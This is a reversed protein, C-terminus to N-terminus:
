KQSCGNNPAGFVEAGDIRLEGRLIIIEATHEEDRLDKVFFFHEFSHERGESDHVVTNEFTQRNLEEAESTLKMQALASESYDFTKNNELKKGDLIVAFLAYKNEGFFAFGTGKFTFKVGAGAKGSSVTRKYDSFGSMLNHEWSGYYVFESDTDDFRTVYPPTNEIPEGKFQKFINKNYSSYLAARGACPYFEDTTRSGMLKGDLFYEIKNYCASLKLCHPKSMDLREDAGCGHVFDNIRVILNGNQYLLLSYGSIGKCASNYRLGVGAFNEDPKESQELLVDVSVSYNFWRDDGFSTTPLPTAGWEEAKIDYTIKQMLAKEGNLEIVEFAGGQDTTYKPTGSTLSLRNQAYNFDDYYPLPLIESKVPKIEPREAKLTSLTVLSCPKVTVEFAYGNETKVPTIEGIERFYNEDFESKRGDTKKSFYMEDFESANKGRTEWFYLPQGAKELETVNIRFIKEKDESNCIVVSYDGTKTDYATLFSNQTNKIAHGDKEGDCVCASDAFAWGKKIFLSFHLAMYFGSEVGYCGSWPEKASILQKYGYTVGDYYAAVVPQFEYLTMCGCPYMAIIRDAIDFVGNLGSLGSKDFRSTGKSYSMPPCGESFLIEKGYKDSLLRTNETGHSIYHSGIIDVASLLKEDQLMLDVIRWSGEEDAAVIKIKSFDYLCDTETKLRESFYKIWEPEVARENRNPSVCDFTLGFERYAANLTDKYWKYRAAFVDGSDSVWKPESWYLLDLILNPNTKKADAALIFGASRRVDPIENEYRMTSPETGSSSNIDSGMELKLYCINLGKDGFILDLIEKYREPQELKYDILLRSSNNASVMGFGRYLKNPLEKKNKAINIEM